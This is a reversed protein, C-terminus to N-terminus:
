WNGGLKLFALGLAQGFLPIENLLLHEDAMHAQHSGDQSWGVAPIGHTLLQKCVTTGSMGIREVDMAALEKVAARVAGVLPSDADIMYPPMNSETSINFSLCLGREKTKAAFSSFRAIYDEATQGPLYRIDLRVTCTGPVINYAGGARISGINIPPPSLREHPPHVCYGITDGFMERVDALFAHAAWIASVGKEPTSAHAQRGHFEVEVHLLGKEGCSVKGISEGTDPVIAYDAHLLNQELLWSIGKASGCEEDAVATVVLTGKFQREHRKLFAALLLLSALPGKNDTVGRGYMCGDKIVPAFPDTHWGEGAPVIDLHAAVATVPGGSGVFALVNARGPASEHTSSAIGHRALYAATVQAALYENGPPNVTNQRVLDALLEIGEAEHTAFWDKLAHHWNM